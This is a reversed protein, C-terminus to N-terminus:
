KKEERELRTIFEAYESYGDLFADLEDQSFIYVREPNKTYPVMTTLRYSANQFEDLEQKTIV